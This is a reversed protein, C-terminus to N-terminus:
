VERLCPGFLSRVVNVVLFSGFVVVVDGPLARQKAAQYAVQPNVYCTVQIGLTGRFVDEMTGYFNARPSNLNAPYWDTVWPHLTQILSKLDKDRLASFVAHVRNAQLTSMLVALERAAQPNHAVDLVTMVGDSFVREQRAPIFAQQIGQKIAEDSCAYESSFCSVAMVAAAVAKPHLSFSELILSARNNASFIAGDQNLEIKFDRGFQFFRTDLRTAENLVTIPIETDGYIFVKGARLIGAKELGISAKTTGLYAEHDYDVTTVIAVDADIINTADLRGGLGVELVMVAVHANKFCWLAALTLYEFYTLSVSVLLRGAEVVNLAECLREDSLAEGQIVIRENMRYLHPSTYRGVTFGAAQYISALATVTSGKGNTGAVTLVLSDPSLLQLSEAVALVRSLGLEMQHEPQYSEFYTVWDDLLNMM